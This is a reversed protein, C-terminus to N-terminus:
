QTSCHMSPVGSAASQYENKTHYLCAYLAQPSITANAITAKALLTQSTSYGLKPQNEKPSQIGDMTTTTYNISPKMKSGTQQRPATVRGTKM